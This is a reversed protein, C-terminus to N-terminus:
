GGGVVVASLVLLIRRFIILVEMVITKGQMPEKVNAITKSFSLGKKHVLEVAACRDNAGGGCFCGCCITSLMRGVYVAAADIITMAAVLLLVCRQRLLVM